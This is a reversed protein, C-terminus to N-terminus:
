PTASQQKYWQILAAYKADLVSKQTQYKAIVVTSRNDPNELLPKFFEAATETLDGKYVVFKACDTLPLGKLYATVEDPFMVFVEDRKNYDDMRCWRIESGSLETPLNAGTDTKWTEYISRILGVFDDHTFEGIQSFSPVDQFFKPHNLAAEAAAKATSEGPGDRIAKVKEWETEFPEMALIVDKVDATKMTSALKDVATKYAKLKPFLPSNKATTGNEV